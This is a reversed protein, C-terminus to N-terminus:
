PNKGVTVKIPLSAAPQCGPPWTRGCVLGCSGSFHTAETGPGEQPRPRWGCTNAQIVLEHWNSGNGTSVKSGETMEVWPIHTRYWLLFSPLIAQFQESALAQEPGSTSPLGPVNKVERPAM